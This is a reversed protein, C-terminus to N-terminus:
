VGLVVNPRHSVHTRRRFVQIAKRIGADLRLHSLDGGLYATFSRQLMTLTEPDPDYRRRFMCQYFTWAWVPAGEVVIKELPFDEGLISRIRAEPTLIDNYLPRDRYAPPPSSM